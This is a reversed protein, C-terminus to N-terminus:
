LDVGGTFLSGATNEILSNTLRMGFIKYMLHVGGLSYNIFLNSGMAKYIVFKKILTATSDQAFVSNMDPSNKITKNSSGYYMMNQSTM